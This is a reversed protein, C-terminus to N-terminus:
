WPGGGPAFATLMRSAVGVDGVIRMREDMVARGAPIEGVAVRLFDALEAGITVDPEPPEGPRASARGDRIRLGWTHTTDDARLQFRITADLDGAAEPDVSAAMAAFFARLGPGSGVVRELQRDDARSM